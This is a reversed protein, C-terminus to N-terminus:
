ASQWEFRLDGFGHAALNREAIQRYAAVPDAPSDPM